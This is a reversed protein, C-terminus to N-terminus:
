LLPPTEVNAPAGGDCTSGNGLILSNRNKKTFAKWSFLNKFLLTSTLCCETSPNGERVERWLGGTGTETAKTVSSDLVMGPGSAANADSGRAEMNGATPELLSSPCAPVHHEPRSLVLRLLEAMMENYLNDEQPKCRNKSSELGPLRNVELLYCEGYADCIIDLGVFEFHLPSRQESM